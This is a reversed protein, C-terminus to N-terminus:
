TLIQATRKPTNWSNLKRQIRRSTSQLYKQPLEHHQRYKHPVESGSNPSSIKTSSTPGKLITQMRDHPSPGNTYGKGSLQLKTLADQKNQVSIFPLQRSKNPITNSPLQALAVPLRESHGLKRRVCNRVFWPLGWM